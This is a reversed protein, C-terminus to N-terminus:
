PYTAVVGRPNDLGMDDLRVFMTQPVYFGEAWTACFVNQIDQLLFLRENHGRGAPLQALWRLGKPTRLKQVSMYNM